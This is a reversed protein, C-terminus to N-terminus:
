IWWNKSMIRYILRTSEVHDWCKKGTRGLMQGQLKRYRGTNWGKKGGDRAAFMTVGPAAHFPPRRPWALSSTETSIRRNWHLKSHSNWIPNWHSKLSIKIPILPTIISIVMQNHSVTRWPISSWKWSRYVIQEKLMQTIVFLLLSSSLDVMSNIPLGDISRHAM